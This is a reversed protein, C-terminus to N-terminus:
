VHLHVSMAAIAEAAKKAKLDMDEVIEQIEGTIKKSQEALNKIQKSVEFFGKATSDGYLKSPMGIQFIGAKDRRGVGVYKFVCNDLTRMAPPATVVLNPNTLLPIYPATQGENQYVFGAGGPVNTLEVTGTPDSIWLEAIDCDETIARLQECTLGPMREVMMACLKAEVTMHLNLLNDFEQKENTSHAAEISARVGLLSTQRALAILSLLPALINRFSHRIENLRDDLERTMEKIEDFSIDEQDTKAAESVKEYAAALRESLENLAAIRQIMENTLTSIRGSTERSNDALRKAEKAVVGFGDIAVQGAPKVFHVAFQIVGPEDSRGVAVVKYEENSVVNATSPFVLSLGPSNILNLIEPSRVVANKQSKQNTFQITGSGDAVYFEEIGSEEAFKAGDQRIFDPDNELIKALVKAQLLLNDEVIKEFSALLDSAHIVEITANIALLNTKNSIDNVAAIKSVIVSILEQYLHTVSQIHSLSHGLLTIKKFAKSEPETKQTTGM